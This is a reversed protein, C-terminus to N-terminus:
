NDPNSYTNKRGFGECTPQDPPMLPPAAETIPTGESDIEDEEEIFFGGGGDVLKKEKLVSGKCKTDSKNYPHVQLRSKKLALAKLKNKEIRAKQGDTLEHCPEVPENDTACMLQQLDLDDDDQFPDDNEGSSFELAM